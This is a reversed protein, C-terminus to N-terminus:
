LNLKTRKSAVSSLISYEFSFVLSVCEGVTVCISLIRISISIKSNTFKKVIEKIKPLKQKKQFLRLMKYYRIFNNSTWFYSCYNTAANRINKRCFCNEIIMFYFWSSLEIFSLLYVVKHQLYTYYWTTAVCSFTVGLVSFSSPINEKNSIIKKLQM